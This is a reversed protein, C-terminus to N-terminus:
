GEGERVGCPCAGSNAEYSCEGSYICETCPIEEHKEIIGCSVCTAKTCEGCFRGDPAYGIGDTHVGGLEDTIYYDYDKKKVTKYKEYELEIIRVAMDTIEARRLLLETGLTRWKESYDNLQDTINKILTDVSHDKEYINEETIM